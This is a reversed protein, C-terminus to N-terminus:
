ATPVKQYPHAETDATDASHTDYDDEPATPDEGRAARCAWLSERILPAYPGDWWYNKEVAVIPNGSSSVVARQLPMASLDDVDVIPERSWSESRSGGGRGGTSASTSYRRVDHTGILRSWDELYPRDSSSGGYIEINSAGKLTKMEEPSWVKSAQSLSQLVTFVVIGRDGFHSYWNPLETLKCVNAAEDLLAVLPTRLRGGSRRAHLTAAYFIVDALAATLATPAGPKDTSLAYMTDTSAVFKMPDFYALNHSLDQETHTPDNDFRKRRPPVVTRVYSPETLVAVFRRAMGYVGDRQRENLNAISTLQHAADHYGARQLLTAPLQVKPDTLWDAAHKIDGGGVTAAFLYLALLEKASGDFYADTRASAPTESGAFAGALERADALTRIRWLPNWWWQQGEGSALHQLDALWIRGRARASEAIRRARQGLHETRWTRAAGWLARAGTVTHKQAPPRQDTPRRLEAPIENEDRVWRTRDYVDVKNSTFFVPGPAQCLMPIIFAMTKGSRPGAVILGVWEWLMYLMPGGVMRGLQLGYRLPGTIAAPSMLEHAAKKAARAQVSRVQRPGAMIAARQDFRRLVDGRARRVAVTLVVILAVALYAVFLVTAALPWTLQGTVLDKVAAAPNGPVPTRNGSLWLGARWAGYAGVLAAILVVAGGLLLMDPDSQGGRRARTM